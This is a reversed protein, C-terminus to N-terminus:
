DRGSLSRVPHARWLKELSQPIHVVVGDFRNVIHQLVHLLRAARFWGAANSM